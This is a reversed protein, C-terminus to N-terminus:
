KIEWWRCFTPGRTCRAVVHSCVTDNCHTVLPSLSGRACAYMVLVISCAAASKSISM